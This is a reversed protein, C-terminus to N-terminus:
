SKGKVKGKRDLKKKKMTKRVKTERSLMQEEISSRKWHKFRGQSPEVRRM